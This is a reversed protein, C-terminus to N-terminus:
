TEIEQENKEVSDRVRTGMAERPRVTLVSCPLDPLVRDATDGVWFGNFGTRGVLGMVVLDADRETATRWIVSEATGTEVLVTPKDVGFERSKTLEDWPKGYLFLSAGEIGEGEARDVLEHVASRASDLGCEGGSGADTVYSRVSRSIAFVHAFTICASHRRAIRLARAVAQESDPTLTGFTM